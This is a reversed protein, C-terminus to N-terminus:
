AGPQVLVRGRSGGALLREIAKPLGALDIEDNCIADLTDASLKTALRQWVALREHLPVEVSDIGLLAVSRLIFPFVTTPVKPGGAVGSAAVAGGYRVAALVQALTDGGVCDVAAAWHERELPKGSGAVAERDIVDAAGLSRLWGTEDTKGTSAVVEYGGAALLAVALSGVGGTAGTVLVPGDGASLGHQELREISLAATFGATGITMASRASLGEPLPMVWAAPLRARTSFGGNHSVGIGYGHALVADGPSFTSDASELVTGALDIGPILPDIRAVGGRPQTALGDKYNLGSWTVEVVVEGDGLEADAVDEVDCTVDDGARRAVFATAADTSM